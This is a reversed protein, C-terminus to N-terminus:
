RGWDRGCYSCGAWLLSFAGPHQHLDGDLASTPPEVRDIVGREWQTRSVPATQQLCVSVFLKTM